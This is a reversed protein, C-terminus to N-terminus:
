MMEMRRIATAYEAVMTEAVQVRKEAVKVWREETEDGVAIVRDDIERTWSRWDARIQELNQTLMGFMRYLFYDKPIYCEAEHVLTAHCYTSHERQWIAPGLCNSCLDM